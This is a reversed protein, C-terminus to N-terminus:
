KCQSKDSDWIQGWAETSLESKEGSTANVSNCKGNEWVYGASQCCSSKATNKMMSSILPTAVAAIVGILLIAIVTLNAEGAAEKM